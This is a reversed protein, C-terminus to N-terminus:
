RPASQDANVITNGDVSYVCTYEAQTDAYFGRLQKYQIVALTAALRNLCAVQINSRYLEDDDSGTMPIRGNDRVHARMTPTSTTVRVQGLIRDDVLRLGLGCDIFPLDRQELEPIIVARARVSDVCVFVFDVDDLLYANDPNLDEAYRRIGKHMRGYVEAYHEVKHREAVTDIYSMAGPARWATHQEVRDSDFLLIRECPTKSILDLVESGTGGLGIIAIRGGALRASVAAIGARTAATDEYVFPSTVVTQINDAAM